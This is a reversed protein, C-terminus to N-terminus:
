PQKLVALEVAFSMDYQHSLLTSFIIPVIPCSEEASEKRKSGDGAVVNLHNLEGIKERPHIFSDELIDFGDM